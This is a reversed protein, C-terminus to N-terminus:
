DEKEGPACDCMPIFDGAILEYKRGCADCRPGFTDAWRKAFEYTDVSMPRPTDGKGNM